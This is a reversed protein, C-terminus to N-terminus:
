AAEVASVSTPTPTNAARSARRKKEGVLLARAIGLFVFATCLGLAAWRYAPNQADTGAGLAHGTILVFVAFSSGHIYRWVKRPLRRMFLSTVEVLVLLWFAVVGVAVPGSKWPSAYPVLLEAVGFHVFSDAVLAALHVGTFLVCMGALFRHVDLMWAPRAANTLRLTLALGLLVSGSAGVWAVVGSARAVYWWLQSSM